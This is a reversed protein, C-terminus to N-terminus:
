SVMKFWIKRFNKLKHEALKFWGSAVDMLGVHVLAYFYREMDLGNRTMFLKGLIEVVGCFFGCSGCSQGRMSSDENERLFKM